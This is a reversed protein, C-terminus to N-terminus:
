FMVISFKIWASDGQYFSPQTRIRRMNRLIPITRMARVDPSANSVDTPSTSGKGKDEALIHCRKRKVGSDSSDPSPMTLLSFGASDAAPSAVSVTTSGAFHRLITLTDDDPFKKGSLRWYSYRDFTTPKTTVM